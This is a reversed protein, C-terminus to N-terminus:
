GGSVNFSGRATWFTADYQATMYAALAGFSASRSFKHTRGNVTASPDAAYVLGIGGSGVLGYARIHESAKIKTVNANGTATYGVMWNNSTGPGIRTGHCGDVTGSGNVAGTKTKRFCSAASSRTGITSRGDVHDTPIANEKIFRADAASLEDGVEYKEGILALRESPASSADTASAPAAIVMSSCLAATVTFVATLRVTAATFLNM